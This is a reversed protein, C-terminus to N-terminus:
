GSPSRGACRIRKLCLKNALPRQVEYCFQIFSLFVLHNLTEIKVHHRTELPASVLPKLSLKANLSIKLWTEVSQCNPFALLEFLPTTPAHPREPHAGLGGGERQGLPCPAGPAKCKTDPFAGLASDM